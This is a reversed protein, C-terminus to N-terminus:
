RAPAAACSAAPAPSGCGPAGAGTSPRGADVRGDCGRVAAAAPGPGTRSGRATRRGGREARARGRRLVRRRLQGRLAGVAAHGRDLADAAPDSRVRRAPAPEDRGRPGSGHGARDPPQRARRRRSRPLLGRRDRRGRERPLRRAAGLAGRLGPRPRDGARRRARRGGAHGLEGQGPRAAFFAGGAGLAEGVQRSPFPFQGAVTGYRSSRSRAAATGSRRRPARPTTRPRRARRRARTPSRTAPSPRRPRLSCSSRAWTAGCAGPRRQRRRDPRLRARGRAVRLGLTRRPPRRRRRALGPAAARRGPRRLAPGGRPEHRRDGRPLGLLEGVALRRRADFGRAFGWVISDAVTLAVTRGATACSGTM